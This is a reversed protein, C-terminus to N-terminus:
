VKKPKRKRFDLCIDGAGLAIVWMGLIPLTLLLTILIRLLIHVGRKSLWWWVLSLGQLFFFVNVLFKLNLELMAWVPGANEEVTLPLIFALLLAWLISKPFIWKEFSPLPPFVVSRKRQLAECLRYNLFSDLMSSMVILSPLMYPALAVIQEMSEKFATADGAGQGWMGSYMQMMMGQLADARLVFPNSGTLVVVLGMFLMKSVISVTTCFFLAESGKKVRGPPLALGFCLIGEGVLFYLVFWPGFLLFLVAGAITLGPIMWKINERVGLLALPTPSFLLAAAGFLPVFAGAGYLLASMLSLTLCRFLSTKSIFTKQTKNPGAM